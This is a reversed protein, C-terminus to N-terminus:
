KLQKQLEDIRKIQDTEWVKKGFTTNREAPIKEAKIAQIQKEIEEKKSKEHENKDLINEFTGKKELNEPLNLSYSLIPNDGMVRIPIAVSSMNSDELKSMKFYSELFSLVAQPTNVLNYEKLEALLDEDFRVGIPKTKAM